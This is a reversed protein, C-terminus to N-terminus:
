PNEVLSGKFRSNPHIGLLVRSFPVLNIELSFGLLGYGLLQLVFIMGFDYLKMSLSWLDMGQSSKGREEEEEGEEEEEERLGKNPSWFYSM